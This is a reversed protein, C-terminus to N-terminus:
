RCERPVQRLLEFRAPVFRRHRIWTSSSLIGPLEQPTHVLADTLWSSGASEEEVGLPIFPRWGTFHHPLPLCLAQKVRLLDPTRTGARGGNFGEIKMTNEKSGNTPNTDDIGLTMTPKLNWRLRLGWMIVM